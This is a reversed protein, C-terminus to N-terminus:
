AQLIEKKSLSGERIIKIKGDEIEIITSEGKSTITGGDVFVDYNEVNKICKAPDFFSPQGIVLCLISLFDVDLIFSNFLGVSFM